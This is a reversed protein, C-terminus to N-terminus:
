TLNNPAGLAAPMAPVSPPLPPYTHQSDARTMDREDATTAFSPAVLKPCM